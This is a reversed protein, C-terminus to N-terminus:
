KKKKQINEFRGKKSCKSEIAARVNWNVKQQDPRPNFVSVLIEYKSSPPESGYASRRVGGSNSRNNLSAFEIASRLKHERYIWLTLVRYIQTAASIIFM